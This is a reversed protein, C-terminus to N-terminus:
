ITNFSIKCIIQEQFFSWLWELTNKGWHFVVFVWVLCKGDM